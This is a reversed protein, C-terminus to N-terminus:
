GSLCFELGLNQRSLPSKRGLGEVWFGLVIWKLPGILEKAKSMQAM